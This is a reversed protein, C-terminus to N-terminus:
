TLPSRQRSRPGPKSAPSKIAPGADVCGQARMWRERTPPRTKHSNQQMQGRIEFYIRGSQITRHTKELELDAASAQAHIASRAGRQSDQGLSRADLHISRASWLSSTKGVHNAILEVSQFFQALSDLLVPLSAPWYQSRAEAIMARAEM